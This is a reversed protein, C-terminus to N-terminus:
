SPKPNSDKVLKIADYWVKFKVKLDDDADICHWLADLSDGITPYTIEGDTTRDTQYKVAAALEDIKARAQAVLSDDIEVKKGDKDFVGNGEDIRTVIGTYARYIAEHDLAM